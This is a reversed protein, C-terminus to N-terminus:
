KQCLILSIFLFLGSRAPQKLSPQEKPFANCFCFFLSCVARIISMFNIFCPNCRAYCSQSSHRREPFMPKLFHFPSRPLESTNIQGKRFATTSSNIIEMFKGMFHRLNYQNCMLPAFFFFFLHSMRDFINLPFPGLSFFGQLQKVSHEAGLLERVDSEHIHIISLGQSSLQRTLCLQLM